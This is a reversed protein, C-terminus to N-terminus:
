LFVVHGRLIKALPERIPAAVQNLQGPLSVLAEDIIAEAERQQSRKCVRAFSPTQSMIACVQNHALSSRIEAKEIRFRKALCSADMNGILGAPRDVIQVFQFVDVTLDVGIDPLSLSDNADRRAGSLDEPPDVQASDDVLAFKFARAGNKVANSIVRGSIPKKNPSLKPWFQEFDLDSTWPRWFIIGSSRAGEAAM